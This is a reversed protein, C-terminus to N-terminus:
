KLSVVAEVPWHDSIYIGHEKKILTSYDLVNM